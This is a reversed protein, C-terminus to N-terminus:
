LTHPIILSYYYKKTSPMFFWRLLQCPSFLLKESVWRFFICNFFFNYIIFVLFSCSNTNFLSFYNIFVNLTSSKLLIFYNIIYMNWQKTSTKLIRTCSPRTCWQPYADFLDKIAACSIMYRDNSLKEDITSQLQKLSLESSVAQMTGASWELVPADSIQM